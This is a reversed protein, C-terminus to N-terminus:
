QTVSREYPLLGHVILIPTNSFNPETVATPSASNEQDKELQNWAEGTIDIAGEESCIFADAKGPEITIDHVIVLENQENSRAITRFTGNETAVIGTVINGIGNVELFDSLYQFRDDDLPLGILNLGKYLKVRSGGRKGLAKGVLKLNM